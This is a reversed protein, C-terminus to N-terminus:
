ARSNDGTEVLEGNSIRGKLLRSCTITRPDGLRGANVIPSEITGGAHIADGSSIEVGARIGERAMISGAAKIVRGSGITGSCFISGASEITDGCHISGGAEISQEAQLISAVYIAAGVNVDGGTCLMTGAGIRLSGSINIDGNVRVQGLEPAIQVDGQWGDLSTRGIYSVRFDRKRLKLMPREAPAQQPEPQQANRTAQEFQRIFETEDPRRHNVILAFVVVGIVLGAMVFIM